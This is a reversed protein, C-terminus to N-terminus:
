WARLGALADLMFWVRAAGAHALLDDDFVFVPVVRGADAAAALGRNDTGRLDRRHWHLRM